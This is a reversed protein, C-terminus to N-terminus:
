PSGPYLAEALARVVRRAQSGDGDLDPNLDAVSVGALAPSALFPQALESFSQWDLGRPQPYSV